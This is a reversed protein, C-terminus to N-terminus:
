FSCSAVSGAPSAAAALRSLRPMGLARARM